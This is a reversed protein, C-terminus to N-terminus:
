KNPTERADEVIDAPKSFVRLMTGKEIIEYMRVSMDRSLPYESKKLNYTPIALPNDFVGVVYLDEVMNEKSYVTVNLGEILIAPTEFCDTRSNNMFDMLEARNKIRDFNQADRVCEGNSGFYVLGDNAANGQIFGTPIRFRTYFTSNQYNIDYDPYFVQVADSSWRKTKMFDERLVAARADNIVAYVYGDDLRRETTQVGGEMLRVVKEKHQVITAM